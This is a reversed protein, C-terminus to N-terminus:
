HALQDANGDLLAAWQEDDTPDIQFKPPTGEIRVVTQIKRDLWTDIAAPDWRAGSMTGLAAKPFGDAELSKLNRYLQEISLGLRRAVQARNLLTRDTM